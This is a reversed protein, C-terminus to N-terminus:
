CSAVFSVSFARVPNKVAFFPSFAFSKEVASPCLYFLPHANLPFPPANDAKRKPIPQNCAVATRFYVM